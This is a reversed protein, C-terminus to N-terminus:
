QNQESKGACKVCRNVYPIANLRAKPIMKECEECEGYTGDDIRKLAEDIQVLVESGSQAISLTFEQEYNDTGIDAMHIPMTSSEGAGEMRDKNLATTAMTSVDGRLRARLELLKARFGALDVATLSKPM